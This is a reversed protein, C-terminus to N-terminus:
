LLTSILCSVTVLIVGVNRKNNPPSSSTSQASILSYEDRSLESVRGSKSLYYGDEDTAIKAVIENDVNEIPVNIQQVIDTITEEEIVPQESETTSRVVEVTEEVKELRQERFRYRYRQDHPSNMQPRNNSSPLIASSGNYYLHNSTCPAAPTQEDNCNPSHCLCKYYGEPILTCGEKKEDLTM